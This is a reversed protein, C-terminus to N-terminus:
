TSKVKVLVVTVNDDGGRSNASEVLKKAADELCLGSTSTEELIEFMLADDVPGSLGDSCILFGDNKEIPFQYTDAHVNSEYGVSRTIVNKMEDNRVQERTILGARLKEQVLSHDRTLQWLGMENFYYVRSDGVQVITATQNAIRLITATTGMGQLTPDKASLEYIARNASLLAEETLARESNSSNGFKEFHSVVQEVCVRSATEGGQHGGMGDAVVFLGLDPRVTGSDQNQKRKMGIDSLLVCDFILTAPENM